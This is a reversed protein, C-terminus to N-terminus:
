QLVAMNTERNDTAARTNYNCLQTTLVFALYGTFCLINVLQPGKCLKGQNSYNLCIGEQGEAKLYSWLFSMM